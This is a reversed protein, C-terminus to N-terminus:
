RMEDAAAHIKKFFYVEKIVAFKEASLRLFFYYFIFYNELRCACFFFKM